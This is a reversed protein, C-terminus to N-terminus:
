CSLTSCALLHLYCLLLEGHLTVYPEYAFGPIRGGETDVREAYFWITRRLTTIM